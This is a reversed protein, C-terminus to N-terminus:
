DEGQLIRSAQRINPLHMPVPGGKKHAPGYVALAKRARRRRNEDYAELDAVRIYWRGDIKAAKLQGSKLLFRVRRETVRLRHAADVPFVMPGGKIRAVVKRKVRDQRKPMVIETPGRTGMIGGVADGTLRGSPAM